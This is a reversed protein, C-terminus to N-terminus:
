ESDPLGSFDLDCDTETVRLTESVRLLCRDAVCDSLKEGETVRVISSGPGDRVGRLLREVLGEIVKSVSVRRKLSDSDIEARPLDADFDSDGSPLM